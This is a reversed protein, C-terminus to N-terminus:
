KDLSHASETVCDLSELFDSIHECEDMIETLNSVSKFPGIEVDFIPLTIYLRVAIVTGVGSKVLEVRSNAEIDHLMDKYYDYIMYGRKRVNLYYDDM